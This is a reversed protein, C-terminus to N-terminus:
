GRQGAATASRHARPGAAALVTSENAGLLSQLM